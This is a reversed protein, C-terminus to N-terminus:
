TKGEALRSLGVILAAMETKLRQFLRAASFFDNARGSDELEVLIPGALTAAFTLTPGRLAHSTRSLRPGDHCRIADEIEILLRNSDDRYLELLTGLLSLPMRERLQRVDIVDCSVWGTEPRDASEQGPKL